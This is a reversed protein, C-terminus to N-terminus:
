VSVINERETWLRRASYAASAGRGAAPFAPWHKLKDIDFLFIDRASVGKLARLKALREPVFDEYMM